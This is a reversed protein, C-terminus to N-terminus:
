GSHYVSFAMVPVLIPGLQSANPKHKMRINGPTKNNLLYKGAPFEGLGPALLCPGRLEETVASGEGSIGMLTKSKPPEQLWGQNSIAWSLPQVLGFHEVVVGVGCCAPVASSPVPHACAGM